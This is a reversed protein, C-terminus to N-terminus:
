IEEQEEFISDYWNYLVHFIEIAKDEFSKGPQEWCPKISEEGALSFGDSYCKGKLLDCTRSIQDEHDPVSDHYFIGTFLNYNFPEGALRIKTSIARTRSKNIVALEIWWGDAKKDFKIQHRLDERLSHTKM